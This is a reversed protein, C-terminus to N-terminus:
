FDNYLVRIISRSVPNEKLNNTMKKKNETGCLKMEICLFELKKLKLPFKNCPENNNPKVVQVFQKHEDPSFFDIWSGFYRIVSPHPKLKSLKKAEDLAGQKSKNDEFPILKLATTAETGIQKAKIVIGYGGSGLKCFDTYDRM